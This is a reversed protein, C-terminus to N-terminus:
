SRPRGKPNLPVATRADRIRVPPPTTGRVTGDGLAHAVSHAKRVDRTWVSAALGYITDNARRIVDDLDDFPMPCLVPGFIEEQVARSRESGGALVTPLYFYGVDGRRQGGAAPQWGAQQAIAVYNAVRDLQEQSVLPGMTADPDFGNGLKIKRAESAVGEVVQDFVKKSVYLRSGACCVQGSNAFIARAVGPITVELGADDCVIVPSKGGLELTVRKLNGAAAQVILKGVGILGTFSVKDVGPHAALAAGATEGYGTVINVVGEPFGAELFLEGLRLASLPTQEAPKLVVTCGCALAPALKM